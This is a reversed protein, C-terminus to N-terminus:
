VTHIASKAIAVVPYRENKRGQNAVVVSIIVIKPNAKDSFIVPTTDNRKTMRRMVILVIPIM